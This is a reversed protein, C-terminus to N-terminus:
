PNTKVLELGRLAVIRGMENGANVDGCHISNYLLVHAAVLYMRFFGAEISMSLPLVSTM